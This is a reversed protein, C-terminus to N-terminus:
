FSMTLRLANKLSNSEFKGSRPSQFTTVEENSDLSPARNSEFKGSRPSQFQYLRWREREYGCPNSEFKGSRPSQFVYDPLKDLFARGYKIQNM